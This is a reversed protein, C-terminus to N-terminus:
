LMHFFCNSLMGFTTRVKKTFSPQLSVLIPKQCSQFNKNCSCVAPSTKRQVTTIIFDTDQFGTLNLSIFSECVQVHMSLIASVIKPTHMKSPQINCFVLKSSLHEIMVDQKSQNNKCLYKLTYLM